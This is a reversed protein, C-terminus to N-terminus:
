CNYMTVPVTVATKAEAVTAKGRAYAILIDAVRVDEMFTLSQLIWNGTKPWNQALALTASDINTNFTQSEGGYGPFFRRSSEYNHLSAAIQKLNNCCQTNRATERAVQVAPLLLAILMGIIAIVILLEVLTFAHTASRGPRLRWAARSAAGAHAFDTSQPASDGSRVTHIEDCFGSEHNRDTVLKM